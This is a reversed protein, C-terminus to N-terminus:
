IKSVTIHKNRFHLNILDRFHMQTPNEIPIQILDRFVCRHEIATNLLVGHVRGHPSREPMWAKSVQKIWLYFM